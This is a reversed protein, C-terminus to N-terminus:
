YTMWEGGGVPIASLNEADSQATRFPKGSDDIILSGSEVGNSWSVTATWEVYGATSAILLLNENESGSVEYPFVLPTTSLEGWPAEVASSEGIQPPTADLDVEAYRAVTQDGCDNAVVTGIMPDAERREVSFRIDTITVPREGYGTLTLLVMATGREAYFPNAAAGDRERVWPGLEEPEPAPGYDDLAGPVVFTSCADRPYSVSATIVPETQDVAAPSAVASPVPAATPETSRNAADAVPADDLGFWGTMVATILGGVVTTVITGVVSNSSLWRARRGGGAMRTAGASSSSAGRASNHEGM